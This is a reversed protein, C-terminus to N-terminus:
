RGTGYRRHEVFQRGSDAAALRRYCAVIAQEQGVIGYRIALDGATCEDDLRAALYAQAALTIRHRIEFPTLEM